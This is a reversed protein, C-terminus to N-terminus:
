VSLPRMTMAGEPCTNACLGCGFCADADFVIEMCGDEAERCFLAGFPCREVCVGCGVCRAEDRHALYHRRPWQQAMGLAMGARIPYSCCACCNGNVTAKRGKEARQGTHILGARDANLLIQICEEKTVIQGEGMELTWRGRDDLRFCTNWREHACAAVTTRCDCPVVVHLEAAAVIELAEELLLIDRNHIELSDPDQRLLDLRRALDHHRINEDLHWEILTARVDEPVRLWGDYDQMSLYTVRRYANCARYCIASDEVVREVVARLTADLLLREAAAGGLGLAEAVQGVSLAREGLAVVLDIEQATAVLDVYPLLADPLRFIQQFAALKTM